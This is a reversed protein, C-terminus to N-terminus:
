LIIGVSTEEKVPKKAKRSTKSRRKKKVPARYSSKRAISNTKIATADGSVVSAYSLKPLTKDVKITAVKTENYGLSEKTIPDVIKEGLQFVDFFQGKKVTDGGSNLILTGGETVIVMLPYINDKLQTFVKNSAIDVLLSLNNRKSTTPVTATWKIQNNVIDVIKYEVIVKSSYYTSVDSIREGTLEVTRSKDVVRKTTRAYTVKGTVLYQLSPDNPNNLVKFKRDQVLKERVKNGLTSGKPGTFSSVAITRRNPNLDKVKTRPDVEVRVELKVKCLSNACRENVVRYKVNGRSRFQTGEVMTDAFKTGKETAVYVTGTTRATNVSVGSVQEVARRLATDIAGDVTKAQATTFVTEYSAAIVINSVSLLLLSLLITLKKM